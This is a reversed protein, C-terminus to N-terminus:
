WSCYTEILAATQRTVGTVAYCRLRQLVPCACSLIAASFPTLLTFRMAALALFIFPRGAMAERVARDTVPRAAATM